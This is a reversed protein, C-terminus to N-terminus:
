SAEVRADSDVDGRVGQPALRDTVKGVADDVRHVAADCVGRVKNGASDVDDAASLLYARVNLRMREATARLRRRVRDDVEVTVYPLVKLRMSGAYNLVIPWDPEVTV